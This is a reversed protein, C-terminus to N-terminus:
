GRMSADTDVVEDEGPALEHRVISRSAGVRWLAMARPLRAVVHREAESLSLLSALADAEAPPQAFLAATEVDRLLGTAIAATVSGAAGAASLDSLRHLVLVHAVGRARALKFGGQLWRAAGEDSLLSWAEDLM